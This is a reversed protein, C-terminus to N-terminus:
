YEDTTFDLYRGRSKSTQLEKKPNYSSSIVPAMVHRCSEYGMSIVHVDLFKLSSVMPDERKSIKQTKNGLPGGANFSKKTIGKAQQLRVVMPVAHSLRRIFAKAERRM